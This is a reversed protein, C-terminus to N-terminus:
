WTLLLNRGRSLSGLFARQADRLFRFRGIDYQSTAELLSLLPELSEDPGDGDKTPSPTPPFAQSVRVLHVQVACGPSPSLEAACASSPRSAAADESSTDTPAAFSM